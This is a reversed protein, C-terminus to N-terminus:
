RSYKDGMYDDPIPPRELEPLPEPLYIDNGLDIPQCASLALATVFAAIIRRM